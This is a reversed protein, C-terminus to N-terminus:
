RFALMFFGGSSASEKLACHIKFTANPRSRDTLCRLTEVAPGFLALPHFRPGAIAAGANELDAFIKAAVLSDDLLVTAGGEGLLQLHDYFSNRDHLDALQTLYAEETTGLKAPDIFLQPM